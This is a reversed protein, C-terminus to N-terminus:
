SSIYKIDHVLKCLKQRKTFSGSPLPAFQIVCSKAKLKHQNCQMKGVTQQAISYLMLYLLYCHLSFRNSINSARYNLLLSKSDMIEAFRDCHPYVIIFAIFCKLNQKSIKNYVLKFYNVLTCYSVLLYNHQSKLVAENLVTFMNMFQVLNFSSM